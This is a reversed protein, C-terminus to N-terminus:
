IRTSALSNSLQLETQRDDTRWYIKQTGSAKAEISSDDDLAILISCKQPEHLAHADADHTKYYWFRANNSM